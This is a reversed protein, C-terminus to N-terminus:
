QKEPADREGPFEDTWEEFIPEESNAQSAADAKELGLQQLRRLLRARSIGLHSAAATRNRPFEAMAQLIIDREIQSLVSDLDIKTLPEPRQMHSAFTRLSSPLDHDTLVYGKCLKAADRMVADFEAIDGPWSYALMADLFEQTWRFKDSGEQRKWEWEFWAVILAEIDAVRQALSPVHVVHSELSAALQGWGSNDPYLAILDSSSSTALLSVNPLPHWRVLSDVLSAPLMDIQHLIASVPGHSKSQIRSQEDIMDLTGRLLTRDMLQCEVVIAGLVSASVPKEMSITRRKWAIWKAVALSASSAPGKVHVGFRDLSATHIQKVTRLASPSGGRLFWLDAPPCSEGHMDLLLRKLRSRHSGALLVDRDGRDEKIACLTMPSSSSDLPLSICIRPTAEGSVSLHHVGAVTRDSNPPLALTAAVISLQSPAHPSNTSCDLGILSDLEVGFLQVLADNAFLIRYDDGLIYIPVSANGILRAIQRKTSARQIEEEAMATRVFVGCLATRMM